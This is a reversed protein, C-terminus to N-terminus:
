GKGDLSLIGIRIDPRDLFPRPIEKVRETRISGKHCAMWPGAPSDVGKGQNWVSVMWRGESLYKRKRWMKWAMYDHVPNLIVDTGRGDLWTRIGFPDAM